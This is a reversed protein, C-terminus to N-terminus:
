RIRCRVFDILEQHERLMNQCVEHLQDYYTMVFQTERNVDTMSRTEFQYCTELSCLFAEIEKARDVFQQILEPENGHVRTYNESAAQMVDERSLDKQTLDIVSVKFLESIKLLNCIKPEATGNEYSAINGRNLGVNLALEEQSMQRLRRLHRLNRALYSPLAQEAEAVKVQNIAEM